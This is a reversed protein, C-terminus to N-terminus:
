LPSPTAVQTFFPHALAEQATPRENEEALLDTIFSDLNEGFEIGNKMIDVIVGASYVDVKSNYISKNIIEPAAYEWTGSHSYRKKKTKQVLRALGFDILKLKGDVVIFNQPKIDRHVLDKRPKNPITHLSSIGELIQRSFERIQHIELARNKILYDNFDMVGDYYPSITGVLTFNLNELRDPNSFIETFHSSNIMHLDFDNFDFYIAFDNSEVYPGYKLLSLWEGGVRDEDLHTSMRSFTNFASEFNILRLVHTGNISHMKYATTM